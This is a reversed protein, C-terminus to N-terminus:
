VVSAAQRNGIKASPLLHFHQALTGLAGILIGSATEERVRRDSWGQGLAWQKLSQEGGLVRWLCAGGASGLGGVADLARWVAERVALMHFPV